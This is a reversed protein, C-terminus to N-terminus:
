GDREKYTVAYIKGDAIQFDRLPPFYDPFTARDKFRTYEVNLLSFKWQNLYRRRHNQTIKEKTYDIPFRFLRKGSGDFVNINGEEDDFYLKNDYIRYSCGRLNVPNIKKNGIFPHKFRYFEKEPQVRENYLLIAFDVSKKVKDVVLKQGVFKKGLPKLGVLLPNTNKEKLFNGEKTFFSERGESHVVLYDPYLSITVGLGSSRFEQPGEGKKGFKKILRYDSLSYILVSTGDTIYLRTEDVNISNPKLLQPLPTVKVEVPFLLHGALLLILILPINRM